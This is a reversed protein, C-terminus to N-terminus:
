EADNWVFLYVEGSLANMCVLAVPKGLVTTVLAKYTEDSREIIGADYHSIGVTFLGNSFM